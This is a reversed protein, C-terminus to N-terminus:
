GGGEEVVVVYPLAATLTLVTEGEREREEKHWAPKMM